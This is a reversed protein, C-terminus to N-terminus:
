WSLWDFLVRRFWGENRGLERQEEAAAEIQRTVGDAESCRACRYGNDVIDLQEVPFARGCVICRADTM